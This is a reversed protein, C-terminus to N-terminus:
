KEYKFVMNDTKVDEYFEKINRPLYPDIFLRIESISNAPWKSKIFKLMPIRYYQHTNNTM